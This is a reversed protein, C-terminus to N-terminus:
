KEPLPKEKWNKLPLLEAGWRAILHRTTEWTSVKIRGIVFPDPSQNDYHIEINEYWQHEVCKQIEKLVDTPITSARYKKYEEVRPCITQIINLTKPDCFMYPPAKKTESKDALAIQNELGLASCIEFWEAANIEESLMELEPEIFIEHAM